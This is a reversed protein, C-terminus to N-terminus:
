ALIFRVWFLACGFNTCLETLTTQPTNNSHKCTCVNRYYGLVLVFASLPTSSCWGMSHIIPDRHAIAFNPHVLNDGYLILNSRSCTRLNLISKDSGAPATVSMAHSLSCWQSAMVTERMCGSICGVPHVSRSLRIFTVCRSLLWDIMQMETTLLLIDPKRRTRTMENSGQNVWQTQAECQLETPQM